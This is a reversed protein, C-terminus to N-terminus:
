KNLEGSCKATVRNQHENPSHYHLFPSERGSNRGRYGQKHGNTSLNHLRQLDELSSNGDALRATVRVAQSLGGPFPQVQQRGRQLLRGLAAEHTVGARHTTSRAFNVRMLIDGNLLKITQEQQM